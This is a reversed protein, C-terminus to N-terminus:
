ETDGENVAMDGGNFAMSSAYALNKIFNELEMRDRFSIGMFQGFHSLHLECEASDKVKVMFTSEIRSERIFGRASNTNIYETM